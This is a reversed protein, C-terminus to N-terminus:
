PAAIPVLKRTPASVAAFALLAQALGKANEFNCFAGDERPRLAEPLSALLYLDSCQPEYVLYDSGSKRVLAYYYDTSTTDQTSFQTTVYGDGSAHLMVVAGTSFRKGALSYRNDANGIVWRDERLWLGARNEFVDYSGAAFPMVALRAEFYATKSKLCGSLSLALVATTVAKLVRAARITAMRQGGGTM